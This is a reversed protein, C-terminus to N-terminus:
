LFTRSVGGIAVQERFSIDNKRLIEAVRHEFERGETSPKAEEM